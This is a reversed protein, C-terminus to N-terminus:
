AAARVAAELRAALRQREDDSTSPLCLQEELVRLYEVLTDPPPDHIIMDAIGAGFEAYGSAMGQLKDGDRDWDTALVEAAAAIQSKTPRSM